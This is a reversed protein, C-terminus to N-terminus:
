YRSHLPLPPFKNTGSYVCKFLQHPTENKRLTTKYNDLFQYEVHFM